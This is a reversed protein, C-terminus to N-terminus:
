IHILSLALATVGGIIGLIIILGVILFILYYNFSEENKLKDDKPQPEKSLMIREGIQLHTYSVAHITQYVYVCETTILVLVGVLIILFPVYMEKYIRNFLLDLMALVLLFGGLIYMLDFILSSFSTYLLCIYVKKNLNGNFVPM